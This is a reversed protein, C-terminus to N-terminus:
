VNVTVSERRIVPIVFNCPMDSSKLVDIMNVLLRLRKQSMPNISLSIYFDPYLIAIAELAAIM